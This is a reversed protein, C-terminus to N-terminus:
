RHPLFSSSVVWLEEGSRWMRITEILELHMTEMIYSLVSSDQYNFVRNSIPEDLNINSTRIRLVPM